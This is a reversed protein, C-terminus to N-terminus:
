KMSVGCHSSQRVNQSIVKSSPTGSCINSCIIFLDCTYRGRRLVLLALQQLCSSTVANPRSETDLTVVNLAHLHASNTCM